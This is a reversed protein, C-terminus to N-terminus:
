VSGWSNIAIFRGLSAIRGAPTAAASRSRRTSTSRPTAAPARAGVYAVDVSIDFPLRREFAVNWTQVDGRDVNGIEPTYEAAARDLPM